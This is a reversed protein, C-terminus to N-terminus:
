SSEPHKVFALYACVLAVFAAFFALTVTYSSSLALIAGFLIPGFVLGLSSFFQSAGATEAVKGPPPLRALEAYFLGVWGNATAGAAIVVLYIMVLSWASTFQGAAILAVALVGCLVALIVRANALRDAFIGLIIRSTIGSLHLTSFVLGAMAESLGVERWLYVVLYTALGMQAGALCTGAITVSRISPDRMVNIVASLTQRLNFTAAATQKAKKGLRGFPSLTILIAGAVPIVLVALKWDWAIMLPPLIAGALM